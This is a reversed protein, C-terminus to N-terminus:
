GGLTRRNRLRSDAELGTSVDGSIVYARVPQTPAEFSPTLQTGAPQQGVPIFNNSPTQINPKSATAGGGGGGGPVSTLIKKAQNAASLVAAIQAAYFLPFAFAAAPGTAKASKQAIDLGNVFGLGTGIAIDAIAAVKAAATGEDFLSGLAGITAQVNAINADQAFKNADAIAKDDAAKKDDIAKKDAAAKEDAAKQKALREAAQEDLVAQIAVGRATELATTDAGFQAAQEILDDYTKAVSLIRKADESQLLNNVNDLYDQEAKFRAADDTKKKDAAAKDAAAKEKAVRDREAKDKAAADASAKQADALRKKEANAEDQKIKGLELNQILLDDLTKNIEKNLENVEETNKALEREAELRDLTANTVEIQAEKVEKASRGQAQTVRLQFNASDELLQNRKLLAENNKKVDDTNEGMAKTFLYIGATVAALVTVLLFIPNLNLVANFIGQAVAAAKTAVTAAKEAVLRAAVRAQLAGEAIARAGIAIAIAGQVKQEIKGASESEVGFLALTGTTVAVAGSIAEFGKLFAETKQQPELGEFTKNLTKIESATKRSADSLKTFAASGIETQELEANIQELEKKLSDLTKVSNGSNVEVDFAVTKAM